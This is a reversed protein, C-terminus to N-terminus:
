DWLDGRLESLHSPETDCLVDNGDSEKRKGRAPRPSPGCANLRGLIVQISTTDGATLHAGNGQDAFTLRWGRRFEFWLVAWRMLPGADHSAQKCADFLLTTGLGMKRGSKAELHVNVLGPVILDPESKGNRANREAPYGLSALFKCAAREASKGKRCGNVRSM